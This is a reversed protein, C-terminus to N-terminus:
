GDMGGFTLRNWEWKGSVSEEAVVCCRLRREMLVVWCGLSVV